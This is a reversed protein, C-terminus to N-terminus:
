QFYKGYKILIGNPGDAKHVLGPLYSGGLMYWRSLLIHTSGSRRLKSKSNNNEKGAVSQYDISKQKLRCVFCSKWFVM